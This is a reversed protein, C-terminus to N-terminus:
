YWNLICRHLSHILSHIGDLPYSMLSIVHSNGSLLPLLFFFHIKIVISVIYIRYIFCPLDLYLVSFFILIIRDWLESTIM